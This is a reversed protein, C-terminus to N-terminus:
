KTRFFAIAMCRLCTTKADMCICTAKPMWIATTERAFRAGGTTLSRRRRAEEATRQHGSIDSWREWDLTSSKEGEEGPRCCQGDPRRISFEVGPFARGISGPRLLFEDPRLSCTRFTESQGYTKFVGVPGLLVKLRLLHGLPLDGGSVTVYRLSAHRGASEVTIDRDLFGQWIAPVASIGTVSFSEIARLLDVPLWSDCLILSSGALFASFVQNLGVDFSLPLVSLLRDQGSLSFWEREAEARRMLDDATVLVGKPEGTSGSTFLCAGGDNMATPLSIHTRSRGECDHPRSAANALPLLEYERGADTALGQLTGSNASDVVLYRCQCSKLIRRIQDPKLRPNVYSFTRGTALAAVMIGLAEPSQRVFMPVLKADPLAEDLLDVYLRCIAYFQVYTIPERTGSAGAAAIAVRDPFRRAVEGVRDLFTAM